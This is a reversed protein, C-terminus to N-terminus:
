IDNPEEYLVFARQYWHTANDPDFNNPDYQAFTCVPPCVILLLYLLTSYKPMRQSRLSKTFNKLIRHFLHRFTLSTANKISFHDISRYNSGKLTTPPHHTNGIGRIGSQKM